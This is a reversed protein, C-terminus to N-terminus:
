PTFHLPPISPVLDLMNYPQFNLNAPFYLPFPTNTGMFFYFAM